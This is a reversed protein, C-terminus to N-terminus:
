PREQKQSVLFTVLDVFQDATLQQALDDPMTSKPQPQQAEIDTKSLSHKEGKQDALTVTREDEAIKIGSITRGDALRVLLTQFGPTVTRSPELISEVIHIRSFRSGLGTLEPGIREGERGIRHCKICQTKAADLFLKRGREVDGTRSIAAQTFQELQASSSKRRFRLHFAAGDGASTVQVVIRNLGAALPADFRHPNVAFKRAEQHQFVQKGNIWVQIGATAATLFQATAPEVTTVDAFSLWAAATKSNADLEVKAEPGAALAQPWSSLPETKGAPPFVLAAQRAAGLQDDAVGGSTQWAVLLGSRGQLERLAQEIQDRDGQPVDAQRQWRALTQAALQALSESLDGQALKIVAPAESPLGLEAICALAAPQVLPDDLSQAALPAARPERLRILAELSAARAQADANSALALLPEVAGRLKLKGATMAAAARVIPERDSLLPVISQGLAPNEFKALASVAAARVRPNRSDLRTVLPREALRDAPARRLLEALVDGEEVSEVLKRFDSIDITGADGVHLDLARLRNATPQLPDVIIRDLLERREKAPYASTAPLIAAVAEESREDALWKALADIQPTIQERQMQRLLVLRVANDATELMHNLATEIAETKEWAVTNAPRPPPRYGWYTWPGPQKWIRALAEAYDLRREVERGDLREILGDAIEPEYQRAIARLAIPRIPSDGPLDLLLLVLRWNGSRRMTQMAAHSLIPDSTSDPTLIKRLWQPSETWKLRGLAVVIELLVRPDKGDALAALRQAIAADGPGAELNDCAIVPDYLDALARVAQVQVRPDPDDKVLAFLKERSAESGDQALIWVAHMRGHVTLHDKADFAQRLASLAAPGAAAIADQAAVRAYHSESNLRAILSRPAPTEGATDQNKARPVGAGRHTIRYIRGRGRNPRQGDCWDAVVLSGERDVILDTPKFGYPDTPAGAAFETEPLPGFGSGQRQPHYRVVSKGWECFFLSGHYEAPFQRELYAAGGASSGLGLDALPALAEDPREYYLYPYGHDAGHFSYCVRIKYDGGDNENDRVFVNLEDDLAVDYINRLGSAFLHLDRGDPRCRLIGGGHYVLRDGEPRPVDCGHDGLALYLWGDHGMVIGNACHLRVDNEEPTLGLGTLLDRREDSKGDGDTDKLATLYPSHMVYVTGGNQTLGMISNFGDAYVTAKDAYGDGDTDEILRIEDRRIIETGLGTMYDIAVFVSGPKEKPGVAIASPYEILPDCAFLTAKFGDPVVLPPFRKETEPGTQPRQAYVTAAAITGIVLSWAGIVLSFLSPVRRNHIM